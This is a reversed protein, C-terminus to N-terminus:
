KLVKRKSRRSKTLSMFLEEYKNMVIDKAYNALFAERSAKGINERELKSMNYFIKVKEALEKPNEPECTIGANVKKILESAEGIVAMLIPKGSALYAITKSPIVTEFIKDKKLHVFLVDAIAYIYPMKEAPQREIFHINNLNNKKVSYEIKAKEEGDGILVFQVRDLDKLLKAAEVLVDLGQVLGINGAFVINFRGYMNLDKALEVDFDVPHYISDDVWNPIIHVKEEKGGKSIVSQKFGNSQVSIAPAIRYNFGVLKEVMKLALINKTIGSSEIFEPWLDNVDYIFPSRKLLSFVLAPLIITPAPHYVYIADIKKRVFFIGLIAASLAFSLCSLGRRFASKSHDPYIPLRLVKVGDRYEWSWLRLKYGEYFRGYPYQPIPTMAIVDHGQKLLYSAIDHAKPNPEPPYFQSIILIRM